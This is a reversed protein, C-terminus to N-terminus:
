GVCTSIPPLCVSLPRCATLTSFLTYSCQIGVSRTSVQLRQLASSDLSVAFAMSAWRMEEMFEM